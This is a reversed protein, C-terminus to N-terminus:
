TVLAPFMYSRIVIIHTFHISFLSSIIVVFKLLLEKVSYYKGGVMKERILM